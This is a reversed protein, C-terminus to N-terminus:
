PCVCRGNCNYDRECTTGCAAACQAGTSYWTSYNCTWMLPCIAMATVTNDSASPDSVTQEVPAPESTPEQEVGGCGTVALALGTIFAALLPPIRM